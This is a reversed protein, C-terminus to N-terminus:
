AFRTTPQTAFRAPRASGRVSHHPLPRDGIKLRNELEITLILIFIFLLVIFISEELENLLMMEKYIRCLFSKIEDRALTLFSM